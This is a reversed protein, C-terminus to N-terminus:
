YRFTVHFTVAPPWTGPLILEKGKPDYFSLEGEIYSLTVSGSGEDEEENDSVMPYGVIKVDNWGYPSPRKTRQYVLGFKEVDAQVNRLDKQDVSVTFSGEITQGDDDQATGSVRVSRLPTKRPLKVVVEGDIEFDGLVPGIEFSTTAARKDRVLLPLLDKRTTPKKHALRILASRLKKDSM